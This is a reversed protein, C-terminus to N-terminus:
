PPQRGVPTAPGLGWEHPPVLRLTGEVPDRQFDALLTRLSEILAPDNTLQEVVVLGDDFYVPWGERRAPDPCLRAALRDLDDLKLPHRLRPRGFGDRGIAAEAFNGDHVFPGVYLIHRDTM